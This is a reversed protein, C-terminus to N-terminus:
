TSYALGLVTSAGTVVGSQIDTRPDHPSTFELPLVGFEVERQWARSELAGTGPPAITKSTPAYIRRILGLSTASCAAAQSRSSTSGSQPRPPWPSTRSSGTFRSTPYPVKSGWSDPQQWTSANRSRDTLYLVSDGVRM